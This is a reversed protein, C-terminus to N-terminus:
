ADSLVQNPSTIYRLARFDPMVAAPYSNFAVNECQEAWMPDGTIRMMLEDSAMEEVFGCTETGQRPDICGMRANEDAGFMGGPVQGFCRRILAHVNYSAALHASDGSLMYYTAPERFCQAVNVNHWNPLRSDMTWDATCRHIKEALELLFSDGTINYLWYVSWLNDGGRSNEWYDRLFKSDDVTLQWKFYNTMLDIVRQDGSYEYYSQGGATLWANDNKELWASIEGLHGTLGDRQLELYKRLWGEPQISGVPLKIFQLPKLPARSATYNVNAVKTSPRGVVAIHEEDASRFGTFLIGTVLLTGACVSLSKTFLTM